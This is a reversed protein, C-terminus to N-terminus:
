LYIKERERQEKSKQQQKVLWFTEVVFNNKHSQNWNHADNERERASINKRMM